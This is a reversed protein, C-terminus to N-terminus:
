THKSSTQAPVRTMIDNVVKMIAKKPAACHGMMVLQSTEHPKASALSAFESLTRFLTASASEYQLMNEIYHQVFVVNQGM